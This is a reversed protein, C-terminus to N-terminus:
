KRTIVTVEEQTTAGCSMVCIPKTLMEALQPKSTWLTDSLKINNKTAVNREYRSTIEPLLKTQTKTRSQCDFL